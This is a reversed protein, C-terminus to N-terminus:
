PDARRPRTGPSQRPAHPVYSQSASHSLFVHYEHEPAITLVPEEGHCLRLTPVDRKTIAKWAIMAAITVQLSLLRSM